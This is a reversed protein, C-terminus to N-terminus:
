PIDAGYTVMLESEITDIQLQDTKTGDSNLLYGNKAQIHVKHLDPTLLNDLRDSLRIV